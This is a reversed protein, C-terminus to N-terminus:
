IALAALARVDAIVATPSAALRRVTVRLVRCRARQLRADRIRDQEFARPVSHVARGDLEVVLRWEPWFIDVEFGAVKVNVQPKPLEAAEALELFRRELESRTLPPETYDALIARLAATGRRAPERDILRWLGDPDLQGSRDAQEVARRLRIRTLAGALDFLTRTVTTVPVGDLVAVDEPDLRRARHVRIGKRSRRSTGPVTIDIRAQSTEILEWVAGATRHSVVATPGYAYAAALRYGNPTLRRHGFAYVGQHLRRLRLSRVRAQIAHRDYEFDMLQWTAFVGHHRDALTALKRDIAM